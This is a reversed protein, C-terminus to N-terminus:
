SILAQNKSLSNDVQKEGKTVFYSNHLAIDYTTIIYTCMLSICYRTNTHSQIKKYYFKVSSGLNM